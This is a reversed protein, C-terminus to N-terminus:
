LDIAFAPSFGANEGPYGRPNSILRCGHLHTDVARHTHGFVWVDAQALLHPWNNAYAASLHGEHEDSMVEPIPAHHTVVLTQGDFPKALETTLWNLAARNRKIVDAPRLKRYNDDIRILKYDNMQELAQRSAALADGTVSFDTWATCGLLRIGKWLFSQNELLCVHPAATDKMKQWTRDVHGSYFEHNGAVQVVQCTFANNAWQVAKAGKGIDGALVVLDAGVDPPEFGAGFELHLDSYILIRM